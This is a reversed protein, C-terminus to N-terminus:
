VILSSCSIAKDAAQLSYVLQEEYINTHSRLGWALVWILVPNGKKACSHSSFNYKRYMKAIIHIYM